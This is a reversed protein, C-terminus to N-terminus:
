KFYIKPVEVAYDSMEGVLQVPLNKEFCDACRQVYAKLMYISNSQTEDDFRNEIVKLYSNIAEEYDSLEASVKKFTFNRFGEATKLLDRNEEVMRIFFIIKQVVESDYDGHFKEIPIVSYLSVLLSAMVGDYKSIEIKYEPNFINGLYESIDDLQRNFEKEATDELYKLTLRDGSSFELTDKFDTTEIVESIMSFNNISVKGKNLLKLDYNKIKDLLAKNYSLKFKEEEGLKGFSDEVSKSEAELFSAVTMLQEEESEDLEDKEIIKRIAVRVTDERGTELEIHYKLALDVIFNNFDKLEQLKKKSFYDRIGNCELCESKSFYGRIDNIMELSKDENAIKFFIKTVFEYNLFISRNYIEYYEKLLREMELKLEKYLINKTKRFNKDNDRYKVTVLKSFKAELIEVDEIVSEEGLIKMEELYGTIKEKQSYSSEREIKEVREGLTVLMTDVAEEFNKKEM